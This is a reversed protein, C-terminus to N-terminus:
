RSSTAPEPRVAIYTGRREPNLLGTGVRPALRQRSGPPSHKGFRNSGRFRSGEGGIMLCFGRELGHVGGSTGVDLYTIGDGALERARHIDHEFFSNGGDIIVDDSNCIPDFPHM